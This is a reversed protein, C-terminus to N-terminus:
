SHVPRVPEVSQLIKDAESKTKVKSKEVEMMAEVYAAFRSWDIDHIKGM